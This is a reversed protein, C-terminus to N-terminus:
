DSPDFRRFYLINKEVIYGYEVTQENYSYVRIIYYYLIRTNYMPILCISRPHSPKLIIISRIIINEFRTATVHSTRRHEIVIIIIYKRKQSVNSAAPNDPTYYYTCKIYRVYIYIHKKTINHTQTHRTASHWVTQIGSSWFWLTWWLIRTTAYHLMKAWYM